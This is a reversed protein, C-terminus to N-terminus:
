RTGFASRRRYQRAAHVVVAANRRDRFLPLRGTRRHFHDLCVPWFRRQVDGGRRGVHVGRRLLLLTFVLLVTFVLMLTFVVLLTFVQLLVKFVLLLTFAQLLVPVLRWLVTWWLRSVGLRYVEFCVHQSVDRRGVGRHGARRRRRVVRGADSTQGVLEVSVYLLQESKDACSQASTVFTTTAVVVVDVAATVIVVAVANTVSKAAAATTTVVTVVVVLVIVIVPPRNAVALRDPPSRRRVPLSRRRRQRRVARRRERTARTGDTELTVHVSAVRREPVPM